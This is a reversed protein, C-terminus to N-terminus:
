EAIHGIDVPFKVCARECGSFRTIEQILVRAIAGLSRDSRKIQRSIQQKLKPDNVTTINEFRWFTSDLGPLKKRAFCMEVMKDVEKDVSLDGVATRLFYRFDKHRGDSLFRPDTLRMAGPCM